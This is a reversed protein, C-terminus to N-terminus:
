ARFGVNAMEPGGGRQLLGARLSWRRVLASLHSLILNIHAM